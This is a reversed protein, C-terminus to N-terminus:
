APSKWTPGCLMLSVLSKLDEDRGEILGWLSSGGSHPGQVQHTNCICHFFVLLMKLRVVAQHRAILPIAWLHKDVATSPLM